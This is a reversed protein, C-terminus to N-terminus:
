RNSGVQRQVEIEEDAEFLGLGYHCAYGLALPGTLPEAFELVLGVAMGTSRGGGPRVLQFRLWRRHGPPLVEVKALAPLSPDYARRLEWERHVQEEPGDRQTGDPNWKPRGRHDLKPFRTMVYPTISVWRRAPGLVRPIGPDIRRSLRKWQSRRLLDLLLLHLVQHEGREGWRLERMQALAVLEQDSFGAPAYILLHDIRQDHDEDVPLYFAHRHGEAPRAGVRGSLTPSNKGGNMRGYLSMAARRARDGIAVARELPPLPTRDLTYRLAVVPDDLQRTTGHRAIAAPPAPRLASEPLVYRLWRSAPPDLRKRRNRLEGTDVLLAELLKSPEMAPDPALLEVVRSRPLDKEDPQVPRCHLGAGPVPEGPEALRLESWSEARGLYTVGRLLEELDGRVEAGLPVTPWRVVVPEAPDLRVFTDFVLTRDDPGRRLPMFHRSHGVSARPLWFEPAARLPDLVAAVRDEPWEPHFRKWSAVLAGLLRWPAPPWEPEGENVHHAWPTASFRGALFRIRIEIM